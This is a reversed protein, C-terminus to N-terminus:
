AKHWLSTYISTQQIRMFYSGDTFGFAFLDPIRINPCHEKEDITRPLQQGAYPIPCRFILKKTSNSANLDVLIFYQLQGTDM